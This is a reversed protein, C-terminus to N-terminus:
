TELKPISIKPVSDPAEVKPITAGPKMFSKVCALPLGLVNAIVEAKGGREAMLRINVRDTYNAGTKSGM